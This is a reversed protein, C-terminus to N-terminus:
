LAKMEDSYQSDLVSQVSRKVAFCGRAAGEMGRAMEGSGHLSQVSHAMMHNALAAKCLPEIGGHAGVHSQQWHM